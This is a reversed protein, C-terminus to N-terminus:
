IEDAFYNVTDCLLSSCPQNLIENRWTSIKKEKLGCRCQEPWKTDMCSQVVKRRLSM